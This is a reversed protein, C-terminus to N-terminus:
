HSPAWVRKGPAGADLRERLGSFGPSHRAGNYGHAQQLRMVALSAVLLDASTGPNIGAAKWDRDCDRLLPWARAVATERPWQALLEAARASVSAAVAEGHRRAVHSDPRAALLALYARTLAWLEPEGAAQSAHLSAAGCDFVQAFGGAYEAAIGDRAAASRMAALLTTSPEDAVDHQDSRGLGGPNAQRIARYCAVADDRDLGALTAVLAARLPDTGAGGDADGQTGAAAPAGDLQAAAALHEAAHLLPALLLVIGLNTNCEVVRWTAAIAQEIRTGVRAGPTTLPGAVAAASRLFLGADMAHGPAGIAVNGPKFARVDQVCCDHVLRALAPAGGQSGSSPVATISADIAPQAPAFGLHRVLLDDVLREAIRHRTVSQLGYWAPVSNVELVQAVGDAGVLIDVGAYDMDLAKVAALALPALAGPEAVAECRAGQAVNTIWHQGHRAMVCDVRGGIVFVRFDRHRGDEGPVFRQLYAVGAYSALDPLPAGAVLRQLRDGQSGFLPKLVVAHGLEWEAQVRTAARAGDELVWTAPTPVGARHLLFSTMAKDVTREIARGDNYVPIGLLKLAHLVDLRLIVQELTGGPVGRVFVADPLQPWDPGLDIGGPRDLDFGCEQLRLWAAECGRAAFAKVLQRGHWGPDDTVIAIRAAPRALM